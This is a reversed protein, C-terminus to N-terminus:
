GINSRLEESFYCFNHRGDFSICSHIDARLNGGGGEKKAREKGIGEWGAEHQM